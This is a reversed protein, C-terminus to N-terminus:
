FLILIAMVVHIAGALVVGQTKEGAARPVNNFPFRDRSPAELGRLVRVLRVADAPPGRQDQVLAQGQEVSRWAQAVPVGAARAIEDVSFADTTRARLDTM